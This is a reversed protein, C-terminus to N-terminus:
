PLYGLQFLLWDGGVFWMFLTASCCCAFLALMVVATIVVIRGNGRHPRPMPPLPEPHIHPTPAEEARREAPAEEWIPSEVENIVPEDSAPRESIAEDIWEASAPEPLTPEEAVREEEEAWVQLPGHLFAASLQPGFLIVDGNTLPVPEAGVRQGNVYTGADSGVDAIRYGSAGRTLVAHRYAIQPENLVIDALPYRGVTISDALLEYERGSQPGTQIQLRYSFDSM